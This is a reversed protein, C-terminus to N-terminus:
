IINKPCNKVGLQHKMKELLKEKSLLIENKIPGPAHIYLTKTSVTYTCTKKPIDLELESNVVELFTKVVSGQPAQLTQKYKEFLSSLHTIGEGRKKKKYESNM